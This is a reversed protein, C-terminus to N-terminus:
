NIDVNKIIQKIEEPTLPNFVLGNELLRAKKEILKLEEEPDKLSALIICSHTQTVLSAELLLLFKQNESEISVPPIWGNKGLYILTLSDNIIKYRNTGFKCSGITRFQQSSKYMSHDIINKWCEPLKEVIKDHFLKNNKHDQFAFKEV